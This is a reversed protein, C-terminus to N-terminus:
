IAKLRRAYDACIAAYDRISALSAYEDASHCGGGAAGTIVVPVGTSALHRADTAGNMRVFRAACGPHRGLVAERFLAIAPASTDFSVCPSEALARVELGTAGAIERMVDDAKENETLRVNVVASAADPIQNAADGSRLVCPAFSPHWQDLADDNRWNAAAHGRMAVLGEALKYVPNDCAWPESAHGGRGRATLVLELIGKQAVIVDRGCNADLVVYAKRALYGRRTLGLTTLGGTEEDSAVLAAATCGPGPDGAIEALAMLSCVVNAKCDNAGRGRLLDGELRPSFQSPDSAPVVDMHTVLVLDATKEPVTAAFLAKRGDPFTEAFVHLGLSEAAARVRDACKNVCAVDSTVSPIAVLEGLLGAVDVSPRM